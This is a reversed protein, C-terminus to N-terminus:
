SLFKPLHASHLYAKNKGFIILQLTYKLFTLAHSDLWLTHSLPNLHEGLNIQLKAPM